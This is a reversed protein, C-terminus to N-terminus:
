STPSISKLKYNDGRGDSRPETVFEVLVSQNVLAQCDAYLDEGTRGDSMEDFSFMAYTRRNTKVKYLKWPGRQGAGTRFV